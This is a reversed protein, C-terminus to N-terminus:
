PSLRIQKKNGLPNEILKQTQESTKKFDQLLNTTNNNMMPMQKQLNMNINDNINNEDLDDINDNYNEENIDNLDNIEEGNYNYDNNNIDNIDHIDNMDNIENIDQAQNYNDDEVKM